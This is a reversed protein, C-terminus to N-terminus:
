EYNKEFFKTLNPYKMKLNLIEEVKDIGLEFSFKLDDYTLNINQGNFDFEASKKQPEIWKEGDYGLLDGIAKGDDVGYKEDLPSYEKYVPWIEEKEICDFKELLNYYEYIKWTEYPEFYDDFKRIFKKRNKLDEGLNILSQELSQFCNIYTFKEYPNNDYKEKCYEKIEEVTKISHIEFDKKLKKHPFYEKFDESSLYDKMFQSKKSIAFNFEGDIITAYFYENKEPQSYNFTESFLIIKGERYVASERTYFNRTDYITEYCNRLARLNADKLGNLLAVFKDDAEDLKEFYPKAKSRIQFGNRLNDVRLIYKGNNIDQIYMDTRAQYQYPHYTDCLSSFYDYRISSIDTNTEIINVTKKNSTDIIKEKTKDKNSLRLQNFGYNTLINNIEEVGKDIYEADYERGINGELTRIIYYDRCGITDDLRPLDDYYFLAKNTESESLFLAACIAIVCDRPQNPKTKNIIKRFMEYNIGVREALEKTKVGEDGNRNLKSKSMLRIYDFFTQDHIMRKEFTTAVINKEKFISDM